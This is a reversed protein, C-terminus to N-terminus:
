HELDTANQYPDPNGSGSGRSKKDNVKWVAVFFSYIKQKNTSLYM